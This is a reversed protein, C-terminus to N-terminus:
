RSWLLVASGTRPDVATISTVNPNAQLAPFEVRGWVSRTRVASEQLVRVDGSAGRAFEASAEEWANIAAPNSPDWAPLRIGRAAMTSELTAGGNTSAWAEAAKSGGNIGSWFVAEDAATALRGSTTLVATLAPAVRSVVYESGLGLVAQAASQPLFLLIGRELGDWDYTRFKVCDASGNCEHWVQIWHLAQETGYMGEQTRTVPGYPTPMDYSTVQESVEVVGEQKHATSNAGPETETDTEPDALLRCNRCASSASPGPTQGPRSTQPPAAPTPSPTDTTQTAWTWYLLPANSVKYAQYPVEAQAWTFTPGGFVYWSTIGHGRQTPDIPIHGSPDDYTTPNNYAFAYRNLALPTSSSPVISDPSLMRGTAPDYERAGMAILGGDAHRGRYTLDALTGSSREPDGWPGYDASGIRKGKNNTVARVTGLRDTALWHTTAGPTTEAVLADGAYIRNTWGARTHEALGLDVRLQAGTRVAVLTGDGDYVNTIPKAGPRDTRQLMGDSTWNFRTTAGHETRSTTDGAADYTLLAKGIRTAAHPGACTPCIRSAPYAYSGISRRQTLNGIDDYSMQEPDPRLSDASTTLQGREDYTNATTQKNSASATGIVLGSADYTYRADFIRQKTAGTTSQTTLWGRAPDYSDRETTHNSYVIDVARGSADYRIHDIYRPVRILRGLDDYRYTVVRSNPYTIQLPRGRDDYSTTTLGQVGLICQRTSVLDGLRDYTFQAARRGPCGEASPSTTSTLHGLNAGGAEDYRWTSVAKTAEDTKSTRRDLADYTYRITRGRADTTSVLNGAPDYSSTVRGRDPDDQSTQQGLTNWTSSLLNGHADTTSLLDGAADYTYRTEASQGPHETSPTSLAMRSGWGDFTETTSRGAEDTSTTVALGRDNVVRRIEARTGDANEVDILRGLGDYTYTHQETPPKTIDHPSTQTAVLTGDLYTTDAAATHGGDVPQETRYTRGLGDVFTRTWLKDSSSKSTTTTMTGATGTLYTTTTTVGSPGIVKSVRGLPDFTTATRAGNIATTQRPAEASRDWGDSETCQSLANCSKVAFLHLLGDYRTTTTHPTPGGATTASTLNGWDDYVNVFTPVWAAGDWQRTMTAFGRPHDPLRDCDASTDGDYCMLTRRTFSSDHPDSITTMRALRELWTGHDHLYATDTQKTRNSGAATETRRVVNGFEDYALATNNLACNDRDCEGAATSALLDQHPVPGVPQFDSMALSLRAGTSPATTEQLVVQDVGSPDIRRQVHETTAPAHTSGSLHATWSEQWGMFAHLNDSYRPCSYNFRSADTVTGGATGTPAPVQLQWGAHLVDPDTFRTNDNERREANADWIEQWRDSDGLETAAITSLTTPRDELRRPVVYTTASAQGAGAVSTTMTSVVAGVTGTPPRCEFPPARTTAAVGHGPEYTVDTTAGLGNNIRTIGGLRDTSQIVHYTLDSSPPGLVPSTAEIVGTDTDLSWRGHPNSSPGAAPQLSWNTPGGSTLVATTTALDTHGDHDVDIPQWDWSAYPAASTGLPTTSPTWQGDGDGVLSEVVTAGGGPLTIVRILDATPGDTLRAIFWGNRNGNDDFVDGTAGGTLYTTTPFQGTQAQWTAGTRLLTTVTGQPPSPTGIDVHVLDSHGDGDVDAPLWGSGPATPESTWSTTAGGSSDFTLTVIGTGKAKGGPGDGVHVMDATGDGTVDALQWAGVQPLYAQVHRTTHTPPTKHCLPPKDVREVCVVEGPTSVDVEEDLSSLDVTRATWDGDPGAILVLGNRGGAPLNVLDALRDGTVDALQWRNNPWHRREETPVGLNRSQAAEFGTPTRLATQIQLSDVDAQVATVADPLGDGNVDGHLTSLPSPQPKSPLTDISTANTTDDTSIAVLDPFGDGNVDALTTVPQQCPPHLCKAQWSSSISTLPSWTRRVPDSVAETAPGSIQLLKNEVQVVDAAGDGNIDDLLVDSPLSVTQQDTSGDLRDHSKVVHASGRLPGPWNEPTGLGGDGTARYVWNGDPQSTVFDTLGDGDVDAWYAGNSTTAECNWYKVDPDRASPVAVGCQYSKHEVAAWPHTDDVRRMQFHGSTDSLGVGVFAHGGQVDAKPDSPVPAFLGIDAKHDGNIDVLRSQGANVPQSWCSTPGDAAFGDIGDSLLVKYGRSSPCAGKPAAVVMDSAGDGNVDGFMPRLDSSPISLRADPARFAGTTTGILVAVVTTSNSPDASDHHTASVVVDPLGDGNIDTVAPVLNASEITTVPRQWMLGSLPAATFGGRDDALEGGVVVASMASRVYILDDRGDANADFSLWTKASGDVKGAKGSGDLTVSYLGDDDPGAPYSAGFARATMEPQDSWAMTTMAPTSYVTAPLSTTGDSGIEQVSQLISTRNATSTPAYGVRYTRLPNGSATEIVSSVRKPQRLMGDPGVREMVDPRTETEFRIAVDAYSIRVLVPALGPGTAWDYSVTNGSLDSVRALGWEETGKESTATPRYLLRVGDTHWVIWEDHAADYGIRDYTEIETTYAALGQGAPHACSPSAAVTPTGGSCSVLLGGDLSFNDSADWHPVGARGSVRGISSAAPLAWGFGFPGNSGNSSYSLTLTPELGHYSPVTFTVSTTFSGDPGVDAWAGEAVSLLSALVAAAVAAMCLLCLRLLRGLICATPGSEADM